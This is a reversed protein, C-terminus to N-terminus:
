PPSRSLPPFPTPVMLLGPGLWRGLPSTTTTLFGGGTVLSAFEFRGVLGEGVRERAAAWAEELAEMGSGTPHESLAPVERGLSVALASWGATLAAAQERYRRWWDRATEHPVAIEGAVRRLGMGAVARELAPVIVQVPDLRRVFLFAPLLAHSVSCARCEARKIWVRTAEGVRVWREYGSRFIMPVQCSPCDPRPVEVYKGAAVYEAVELRCPWVISM